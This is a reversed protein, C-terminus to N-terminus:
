SAVRDNKQPLRSVLRGDQVKKIPDVQALVDPDLDPFLVGVQALSSRFGEVYKDAMSQKLADVTEELEENHGQWEWLDEGTQFCAVMFANRALTLAKKDKELRRVEALHHDNLVKLEQTHEERLRALESAHSEKLAALDESLKTKEASLRDKAEKASRAVEDTKAAAASAEKAQRESLQYNLVLGQVGHLLSLRRLDAVSTQEFRAFDGDLLVKQQIFALPDFSGDWASTRAEGSSHLFHSEGIVDGHHDGKDGPSAVDHSSSAAAKTSSDDPGKAVKESRPVSSASRSRLVRGGKSPSTGDDIKVHSSSGDDKKVSKPPRHSEGKTRKRKGKNGDQDGLLLQLAPDVFPEPNAQKETSKALYSLWEEEDITTMRRLYRRLSEVKTERSLLDKIDLRGFSNLFAVTEKEFDTLHAYDVGKIARPDTTWYFPFLRNRNNDYMLRALPPGHRVRFFSDHYSKFHSAFLVFLGRNPLSSLSVMKGPSLSKVYYFSFFVGLRPELNLGLCVLEFAKIFAWSNPHLQTPAVNLIRLVTDEFCTFPFWLNLARIVDGYMYFYHPEECNVTHVLEGEGVPEVILQDDDEGDLLQTIERFAKISEVTAYKSPTEMEGPPTYRIALDLRNLAKGTFSSPPIVFCDSDSSTDDDSDIDSPSLPCGFIESYFGLEDLSGDAGTFRCRIQDIAELTPPSTKSFRGMPDSRERHQQVM